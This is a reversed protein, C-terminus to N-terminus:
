VGGFVDINQFRCMPTAHGVRIVQNPEGKGCFPSGQIEFTSENGVGILSRWFTASIGRYNPTKVVEGVEGDRIVRGIECGFQFKNRSDDISWSRNTSMLVGKEVSGLLEKETLEGPEVNINAMRDIPPRNWSCARANATGGIGPARSRSIVGGLPHKLIGKDIISVKQAASGEDDYGYSAFEQEQTPDFSVNLHESGYAYDGFMDLKVFSTGAYNREDGLIRDLELPHGISEHVQLMMQDPSLVLDMKGTPCDPADLLLMAEDCLKAPRQEFGIRELIELGGQQSEGYAGFSRSQTVAGRNATVSLQPSLMHIHQAVEGGAHTLLLSEMEIAWLSAEWDVIAEHGKLKESQERLLDMKDRLSVSQWSKDVPSEYSGQPHPLVLSTYDTCSPACLRAWNGATTLAKEIGDVSMDSTAAYGYSGEHFVTLMVGQDVCSEIPQAVGRLMTIRESRERMYRLSTYDFASSRRQVEQFRTKLLNLM